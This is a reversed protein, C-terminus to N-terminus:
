VLQTAFEADSNGAGWPSEPFGLSELFDCHEKHYGDTKGPGNLDWSTGVDSSNSYQMFPVDANGSAFAIIASTYQQALKAEGDGQFGINTRQTMRASPPLQYTVDAAHCTAGHPPGQVCVQDAHMESSHPPHMFTSLFAPAHQALSRILYRAYCIMLADTSAVGMLLAPATEGMHATDPTSAYHREIEAARSKFALQMALRYTARSDDALKLLATPVFALTENRVTSVIVPVKSHKGSRITDLPSQPLITGDVLPLWPLFNVCGLCTGELNLYEPVVDAAKLARAPRARLCKTLNRAWRCGVANAVTQVFRINEKPSRYHLGVPSSAMARHFLGQSGPAAIHCVVSMAGASQGALLIRNKDGGFAAINLRVWRLLEQQDQFGFNAGSDESSYFGFIGLRYNFTVLIAPADNTVFGDGWYGPFSATRQTFGGGHIWVMVPLPHEIGKPTWVNAYLCNESEGFSENEDADRWAGGGVCADGFRTGDWTYNWPQKPVPPAFRTPPEAYALGKFLLFDGYDVGRINGLPTNVVTHDRVGAQTLLFFTWVLIECFM